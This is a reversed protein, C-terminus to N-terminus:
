LELVLCRQSKRAELIRGVGFGSEADLLKMGMICKSDFKWSWFKELESMLLRESRSELEM